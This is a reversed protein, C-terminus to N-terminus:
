RPFILILIVLLILFICIQLIFRLSRTKIKNALWGDIWPNFIIAVLFLIFIILLIRNLIIHGSPEPRGFTYLLLALERKESGHSDLSLDSINVSQGSIESGPARRSNSGSSTSFSEEQDDYQSSHSSYHPSSGRLWGNNSAAEPASANRSSPYFSQAPSSRFM